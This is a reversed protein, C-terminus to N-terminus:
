IQHFPRFPRQFKGKDKKEAGYLDYLIMSDNHNNIIMIM